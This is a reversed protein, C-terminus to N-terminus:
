ESSPEPKFPQLLETHNMAFLRYRLLHRLADTAHRQGPVWLGLTKIKDDSWFGKGLGAGTMVLRVYPREHAWIRLAGIVEAATYDIKTRSREDLRFEFRECIVVVQDPRNNFPEAYRTVDTIYRLVLALEADDTCPGIEERGWIPGDPGLTCWAIGTTGGPDIAIIVKPKM